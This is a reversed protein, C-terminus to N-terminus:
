VTFSCVLLENTIEEVREAGLGVCLADLSVILIMYFYFKSLINQIKIM